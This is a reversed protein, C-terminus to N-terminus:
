FLNQGLTVGNGGGCVGWPQVPPEDLSWVTMLYVAAPEEHRPTVERSVPNPVQSLGAESVLAARKTDQQWLQFRFTQCNM